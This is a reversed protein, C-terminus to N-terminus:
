FLDMGCLARGLFDYAQDTTPAMVVAARADRFLREVSLQRSFAAGGCARMALDTVEVATETTSAKIELVLPQADARAAEVAELTSALHARARDTMLRMRALQARLNPLDCLRSQLHEFRSATLHQQTAGVAAECLGVAIAAQCLHFLPLVVGLMMTMGQGPECLARSHEELIVGELRMPASQNGRLGLGNWKGSVTVGNDERLVLYIMSEGTGTARDWGTSVAYGDACGASTVWSKEASLTVKGNQPLRSARSVPAWFHSRSGKESFALTSLHRGQAADRLQAEPKRPAALYCALGCLHMMYIMATSGCHRAIQEVVACAVRPGQGMGGYTEPITLGLLGARGLAEISASPFASTEDVHAARPAIQNEALERARAVVSAQEPQLSDM